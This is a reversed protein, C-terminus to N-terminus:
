QILQKLLSIEKRWVNKANYKDLITQRAHQGIRRRLESSHLLKVIAQKIRESTPEVLLGNHKDNIVDNIGSVNAGVVALGCSMAELLAKPHGELLSPLVFIKAANLYSGLKEHSVRPVISLTIEHKKAVILLERKLSGDGIFLLKQRKMKGPLQSWATILSVLNKQPELRGVYIGGTTKKVHKPRFRQTDVSNPIVLVRNTYVKELQTKLSGTTTIVCDAFPVVLYEIIRFLFARIKKNELRAIQPYNYGYNFVLPKKFILKSIVGPIAGTLQYSRIMSASKLIKAHLIPALFAYLFRPLGLRNPVLEVHPLLRSGKRGYSFIFVNDFNKNYARLNNNLFLKDQGKIEFDEWSEGIALFICLNM